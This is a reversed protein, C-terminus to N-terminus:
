EVLKADVQCRDVGEDKCDVGRRLKRDTAQSVSQCFIEAEFPSKNTLLM